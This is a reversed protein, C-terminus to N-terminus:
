LACFVAKLFASDFSKENNLLEFDLRPVLYYLRYISPLLMPPFLLESGYSSEESLCFRSPFAEARMPRVKGM